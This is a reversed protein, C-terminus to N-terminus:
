SWKELHKTSQGQRIMIDRTWPLEPKAMNYCLEDGM